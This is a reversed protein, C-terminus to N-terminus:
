RRLTSSSSPRRMARTCTSRYAPASCPIAEFAQNYKEQAQRTVQESVRKPQIEISGLAPPGERRAAEQLADEQVKWEWHREETETRTVPGPPRKEADTQNERRLTNRTHAGRKGHRMPEKEKSLADKGAVSVEEHYRQKREIHLEVQTM